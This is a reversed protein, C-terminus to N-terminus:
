WSSGTCFLTRKRKRKQKRKGWGCPRKGEDEGQCSNSLERTHPCIGEEKRLGKHAECGGRWNYHIMEGKEWVTNLGVMSCKKRKCRTQKNKINRSRYAEQSCLRSLYMKGPSFKFWNWNFLTVNYSVSHTATFIQYSKECKFLCFVSAPPMNTQKTKHKYYLVIIRLGPQM